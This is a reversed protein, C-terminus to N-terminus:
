NERRKKKGAARCSSRRQIRRKEQLSAQKASSCVHREIRLGCNEICQMEIRNLKTPSLPLLFCLMNPRLVLYSILSAAFFFDHKSRSKRRLSLKFSNAQRSAITARSFLKRCIRLCVFLGVFLCFFAFLFRPSSHLLCSALRSDLDRPEHTQCARM